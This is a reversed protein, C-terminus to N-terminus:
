MIHEQCFDDLVQFGMWDWSALPFMRIGTADHQPCLRREPDLRLSDRPEAITKKETVFGTEM